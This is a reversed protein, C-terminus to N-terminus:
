GFWRFPLSDINPVAVVLRGRPALLCHAERLVALPAHVHELSQWMTVIDFSGPELDPHPLTGIVTRVPPGDADHAARNPILDVGTVHWGQHRIRVLYSGNGCGFDLLRAEGHVPLAKRVDNSWRSFQRRWWRVRAKENARHPKYDAPY